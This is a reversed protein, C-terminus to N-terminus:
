FQIGVEYGPWLSTTLSAVDGIKYRVTNVQYVEISEPHQLFFNVSVGAFVYGFRKRIGYELNFKSLLNFEKDFKM